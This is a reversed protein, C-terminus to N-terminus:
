EDDPEAPLADHTERKIAQLNKAMGATEEKLVALAVTLREEVDDEDWSEGEKLEYILAQQAAIVDEALRRPPKGNRVMVGLAALDLLEIYYDRELTVSECMEARQRATSIDASNIPQGPRSFPTPESM